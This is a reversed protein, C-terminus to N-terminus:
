FLDKIKLGHGKLFQMLFIIGCVSYSIVSAYAAGYMGFIPIFFINAVINLIVSILLSFFYAWRKGEALLVVGIIKYFVMSVAGLSLIVTVLYSGLFEEGYLINIAFRGFIIFIIILSIITLLSIKISTLVAKSSNTKTFKSLLVEKFADPLLWFYNIIGLATSYLGLETATGMNKLFFVDVSYNLNILLATLMPVWSYNVVTFLFERDYRVKKLDPKSYYLYISVGFINLLVTLFIPPFLSTKLTLFMVFFSIMRLTVIIMHLKIKLRINEIIMTSEMQQNIVSFPLLLLVYIYNKNDFYFMLTVALLIHIIFQLLYVTIYKEFVGGNNKRYFFSYSQHIGLNFIITLVLVIQTIYSYDGKYEVGLYRTLFATSLVGIGITYIKNIVNLSYDNRFLKSFM